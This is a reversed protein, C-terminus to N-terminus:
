LEITALATISFTTPNTAWTPCVIKYEWYDDTALPINLGSYHKYQLATDFTLSNTVLYDTTNNVRVYLSATESSGVTGGVVPNICVDTISSIRTSIIRKRGGFASGVVFVAGNAFYITDEDAPNIASTIVTGITFVPNLKIWDSSSSSGNACYFKKNTTDIYVDGVKAPTSTPAGSGSSVNPYLTNYFNKLVTKGLAVIYKIINTM